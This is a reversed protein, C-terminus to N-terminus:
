KVVTLCFSNIKKAPIGVVNSGSEVDELVVAGAGVISYNGVIKQPLITANLGIHAFEGIIAGGAVCAGPSVHAFDGVFSDHEVVACSNVIVHQGVNAAANVVAGPMVVTGAGLSASPSVFASPHIFTGFSAGKKRLFQVLNARINNQGIAVFFSPNWNKILNMAHMIPGTTIGDHLQVCEYKDDLFAVVEFEVSSRIVDHVVKAHGGHGVLVVKRM